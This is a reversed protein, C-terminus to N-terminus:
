ANSLYREFGGFHLFEGNVGITVFTENGGKEAGRPGSVGLLPSSVDPVLTRGCAFNPTIPGHTTSFHPSCSSVESWKKPSHQALICILYEMKPACRICGESSCLTSGVVRKRNALAVFLNEYGKNAIPVHKPGFKRVAESSLPLEGPLCTVLLVCM